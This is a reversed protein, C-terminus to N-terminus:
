IIRRSQSIDLIKSLLNVKAVLGIILLNEEFSYGKNIWKFRDLYISFYTIEMETMCLAKVVYAVLNYVPYKTRIDDTLSRSESVLRYVFNEKNITIVDQIFNIFTFM